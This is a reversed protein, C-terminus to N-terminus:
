PKKASQVIDRVVRGDERDWYDLERRRADDTLFRAPGPEGEPLVRVGTKGSDPYGVVEPLRQTSIALYVLDERGTNILQHAHEPGGAPAVIYDGPQVPYTDSGFRLMGRGRVVYFHEENAHHHHFPFAAKGPPVTTLNAGIQTAGVVPGLDAMRMEFDSDHALTDTIVADAINLIPKM